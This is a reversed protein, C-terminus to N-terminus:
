LYLQHLNVNNAMRTKVFTTCKVRNLMVNQLIDCLAPTRLLPAQAWSYKIQYFLNHTKTLPLPGNFVFFGQDLSLGYIQFVFLSFVEYTKHKLASWAFIFVNRM